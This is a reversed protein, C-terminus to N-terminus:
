VGPTSQLVMATLSKFSQARNQFVTSEEFPWPGNGLLEWQPHAHITKQVEEFYPLHDTRFFFRSSSSCRPILLDLFSSTLLRNKHHRTKPWPDPFLVFVTEFTVAQPLCHFFELAECRVFHLNSLRARDRKKDARRVREKMLDLGVCWQDPHNAAYSALFHGHGAGIELVIPSGPPHLALLGHLAARLEVRRAELLAEFSQRDPSFEELSSKM